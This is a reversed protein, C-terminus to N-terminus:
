QNIVRLRSLLLDNVKGDVTLGNAKQFSIIADRTKPGMFGDPVGTAYGLGNLLKQAELIQKKTAYSQNTSTGVTCRMIETEAYVSWGGASKGSSVVLTYSGSKPVDFVVTGDLRRNPNINAGFLIKVSLDNINGGGQGVGIYKTGSKDLLHFIPTKRSSWQLPKKSTNKVYADLVLFSDQPTITFQQEYMRRQSAPLNDISMRLLKKEWHIKDFGIILGSPDDYKAEVCSKLITDVRVQQGPIVFKECGSMALLLALLTATIVIQKM